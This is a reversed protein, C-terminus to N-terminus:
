QKKKVFQEKSNLLGNYNLQRNNSLQGTSSLKTGHRILISAERGEAPIEFFMVAKRSSSDKIM